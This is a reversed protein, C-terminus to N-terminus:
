HIRAKYQKTIYTECEPLGTLEMEMRMNEYLLEAEKRNGACIIKAYSEEYINKIREWKMGLESQISPELGYYLSTDWYDSEQFRANAFEAHEDSMYKTKLDYPTGDSGLGNKILWKWRRVGTLSELLQGEKSWRALFAQNPVHKGDVMKWHEGEIGWLMLYQGEESALFDLVKIAAEKNQCNRTIGIADWGLSNRGNFTTDEPTLDDAVVKYCFFQADEGHKLKLEANVEDTDWYSEWVSFVLGNKLDSEWKSRQDIVWQKCILGKCYLQNLYLIAEKYRESAPLYHLNGDEDLDYTKMGFIGKMTMDYNGSDSDIDLPVSKTGNIEKHKKQFAELLATYESLTFPRTSNAREEGVLEILYDKRMLVGASADTDKGYWNALWYLKGDSYRSQDLIEGYMKRINPGFQDILGDLPTFVGTEIMQNVMEGQEMLIIDPYEKKLLMMELKENPSNSADVIEIKVGTKEMIAQAVEDDFAAGNINKDFVKLVPREEGASAGTDVATETDAKKNETSPLLHCGAGLLFTILILIAILLKKLRMYM